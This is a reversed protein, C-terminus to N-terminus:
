YEVRRGSKPLGNVTALHVALRHRYDDVAAVINQRDDTLNTLGMKKPELMQLLTLRGLVSLRTYTWFCALAESDHGPAM